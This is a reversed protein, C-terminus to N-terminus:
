QRDGRGSQLSWSPLCNQKTPQRVWHTSLLCENVSFFLNFLPRSPPQPPAPRCSQFPSSALCPPAPSPLPPFSCNNALAQSLPLTRSSWPPLSLLGPEERPGPLPATASQSNTPAMQWGPGGSVVERQLFGSKRTMAPLSQEM